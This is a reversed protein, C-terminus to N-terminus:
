EMRRYNRRLFRGKIGKAAAQPDFPEDKPATRVALEAGIDVARASPESASVDLLGADVLHRRMLRAREAEQRADELDARASCLEIFERPEHGIERRAEALPIGRERALQWTAEDEAREHAAQWAARHAREAREAAAADEADSQAIRARLSPSMDPYREDVPGFGGSVFLQGTM